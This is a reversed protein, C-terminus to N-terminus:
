AAEVWDGACTLWTRSSSTPEGGVEYGHRYGEFGVGDGIGGGEGRRECERQGHGQVLGAYAAAAAPEAFVGCGQALAPIAAVIAEDSVRM